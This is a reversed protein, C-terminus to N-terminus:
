KKFFFWLIVLLLISVLGGGLPGWITEYTDDDSGKLLWIFL